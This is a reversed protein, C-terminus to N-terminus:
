DDEYYDGNENDEEDFDTIDQEGKRVLEKEDDSLGFIDMENELKNKKKKKKDNELEESLSLLFSLLGM